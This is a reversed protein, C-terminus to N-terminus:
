GSCRIFSGATEIAPFTQCPIDQTTALSFFPKPIFGSLLNDKELSAWSLPLMALAFWARRHM